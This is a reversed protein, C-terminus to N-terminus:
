LKSGELIFIKEQLQTGLNYIQQQQDKLLEAQAKNEAILFMSLSFLGLICLTMLYFLQKRQEKM